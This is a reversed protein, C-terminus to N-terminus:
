RRQLTTTSDVTAASRSSEGAFAADQAVNNVNMVVSGYKKSRVTLPKWRM